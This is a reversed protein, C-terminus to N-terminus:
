RDAATLGHLNDFTYMGQRDGDDELRQQYQWHAARLGAASIKGMVPSFLLGLQMASSQMKSCLLLLSVMALLAFQLIWLSCIM